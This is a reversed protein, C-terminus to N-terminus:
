ELAALLEEAGEQGIILHTIYKLRSAIRIADANGSGDSICIIKRTRILMDVPIHMLKASETPLYGDENFFRGIIDGVPKKGSFKGIWSSAADNDRFNTPPYPGIGVLAVDLRSWIDHLENYSEKLIDVDSYFVAKAHIKEALMGSLLNMQYRPDHFGVSGVLPVVSANQSKMESSSKMSIITRYVAEGWGVGIHDEACLEKELVEGAYQALEDMPSSNEEDNGYPAVYVRTLGLKRRINEALFLSPSLLNVKIEVIGTSVAQALSRSVQPRSMGTREAIEEQTLKDEYYMVAIEYLQKLYNKM